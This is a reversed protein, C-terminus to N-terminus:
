FKDNDSIRLVETGDLDSVKKYVMLNEVWVEHDGTLRLIHGSDTTIEFWEDAFGDVINSAIVDQYEEIYGNYSMVRTTEYPHECIDKITRPGDETNIVSDGDLCNEGDMKTSVIVRRGVFVSMDKHMRDDDTIGESWPAHYTRPYKVRNTFLGLVQGQGLVKQVSEDFFLEGRLRMGNALIINGWKDYIADDYLHDPLIPKLIGCADRVDEVSIVTMECQMHHDACVSAGNDLYYGGSDGWLRRELIHHADVAPQECFVCKHQDRAFVGERFADRSLLIRGNSM